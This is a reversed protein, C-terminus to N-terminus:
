NWFEDTKLILQVPNNLCIGSLLGVRLGELEQTM